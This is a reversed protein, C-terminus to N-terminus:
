SEPVGNVSKLKKKKQWSFIFNAFPEGIESLGAFWKGVKTRSHCFFKCPMGWKLVFYSFGKSVLHPIETEGERVREGERKGEIKLQHVVM